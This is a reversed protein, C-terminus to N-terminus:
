VGFYRFAKLSSNKCNALIECNPLTASTRIIFSGSTQDILISVWYAFDSAWLLICVNPAKFETVIFEFNSLYVLNLSSWIRRVWIFSSLSLDKHSSNVSWFMTSAIAPMPLCTGVYAKYLGFDMTKTSMLSSAILFAFSCYGRISPCALSNTSHVLVSVLCNLTNIPIHHMEKRSPGAVVSNRTHHWFCTSYATNTSGIWLLSTESSCNKCLSYCIIM